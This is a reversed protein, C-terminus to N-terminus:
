QSQEVTVIMQMCPSLLTYLPLKTSISSFYNMVKQHTRELDKVSEAVEKKKRATTSFSTAMYWVTIWLECPYQLKWETAICPGCNDTCQTWCHTMNFLWPICEGKCGTRLFDGVTCLHVHYQKENRFNWKWDRFVRQRYKTNSKVKM